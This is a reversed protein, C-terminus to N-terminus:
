AHASKQEVMVNLDSVGPHADLLTVVDMWGCERSGILRYVARIFALDEPTDVTWRMHSRDVPNSLGVVSFLAPHEYLYPFVHAREHPSEAERWVRELAAFPVAEVDLGRPFTRAVTNASYDVRAGPGLIPRVVEDILEPDILPCDSTIRVVVDLQHQQAAQYYRDLVDDERGRFVDINLTRAHDALVDDMPGDPTAVVIQTVTRARRVRDVVRALMSRGEIDLLAKGPLRTSGMRAQVIAGVRV